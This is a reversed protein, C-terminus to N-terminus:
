TTYHVGIKRNIYLFLTEMYLVTWASGYTRFYTIHEPEEHVALYDDFKTPFYEENILFFVNFMAFIFPFSRAWDNEHLIYANLSVYSRHPILIVDNPRNKKM